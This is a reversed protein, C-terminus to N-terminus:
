IVTGVAVSSNIICRLLTLGARGPCFFSLHIFSYIFLDVYPVDMQTSTRCSFMDAPVCLIQCPRFTMVNLMSINIYLMHLQRLKRNLNGDNHIFTFSFPGSDRNEAPLLQEHLVVQLCLPASKVRTSRMWKILFHHTVECFWVSKCFMIQVFFDTLIM